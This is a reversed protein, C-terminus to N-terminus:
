PEMPPLTELLAAVEEVDFLPMWRDQVKGDAGILFLWPDTLGENRFVWEAAAENVVQGEFDKWLELHIYVARDPFRAALDMLAENEPGCLRSQCYAPTGVIMLIPRHQAIADAVTWRHLEPDPVPAGDIALSDISAPDAGASELTLNHTRPARDGPAPYVPDDVVIFVTSVTRPGLGTIDASVDVQWQGARDFTVEAQYTGRSASTLEPITGDDGSGYVPLFRAKATPGPESAGGGGTGLYSFALEVTGYSLPVRGQEPDSGVVGVQVRQPPGVYLDVSAMEAALQVTVSSSPTSGAPPGQTCAAALLSLALAALAVRARMM